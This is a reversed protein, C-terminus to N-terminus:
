MSERAAGGAPTDKKICRVRNVADSLSEFSDSCAAVQKDRGVGERWGNSCVDVNVWAVHGMFEFFVTPLNGTTKQRREGLGNIDLALDLLEHIKQRKLKEVKKSLRKKM